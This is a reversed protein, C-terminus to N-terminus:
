DGAAATASGLTEVAVRSYPIGNPVLVPRLCRLENELAQRLQELPKEAEARPLVKLIVARMDERFSVELLTQEINRCNQVAGADVPFVSPLCPFRHGAVDLDDALRLVAVLFEQRFPSTKLDGSWQLSCKAHAPDRSAWLDYCLSAVSKAETPRLPLDVYHQLIFDRSLAAQQKADGPKRRKKDTSALCGLDHLLGSCLLAFAEDPTFRRVASSPVLGEIYELVRNAHVSHHRAYAWNERTAGATTAAYSYAAIARLRAM